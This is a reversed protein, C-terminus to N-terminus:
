ADRFIRDGPCDHHCAAHRPSGSAKGEASAALRHGCRRGPTVTKMAPLLLPHQVPRVGCPMRCRSHKHLLQAIEMMAILALHM